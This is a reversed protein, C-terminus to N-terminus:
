VGARPPLPAALAAAAHGNLRAARYEGESRSAAVVRALLRTHTYRRLVATLHDRLQTPDIAEAEFTTGADDSAELHWDTIQWPTVAVWEYELLHEASPRGGRGDAKYLDVLFQRADAVTRDLRELGTRDHDGILLLVTRMRGTRRNWREVVRGALQYLESVSNTGGSSVVPAGYERAPVAVSAMSGVSEVFVEPAWEQGLRRWREWGRAEAVLRGDLATPALDSPVHITQTRSDDVTDFGIWGARRAVVLFDVIGGTATKKTFGPAGAIRYAYARPTLPLLEPMRAQVDLVADLWLQENANPKRSSIVGLRRGDRRVTGTVPGTYRQRPVSVTRARADGTV